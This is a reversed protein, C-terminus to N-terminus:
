GTEYDNGAHWDGRGSPLLDFIAWTPCIQDVGRWTDDSYEAHATYVHRVGQPTKELVLVTSVPNGEDNQAGTTRAFSDDVDALVRIRNWGRREAWSKLTKPPALSALVISARQAVHPAVGNWADAWMSCM